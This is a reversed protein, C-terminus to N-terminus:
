GFVSSISRIFGTLGTSKKPPAKLDAKARKVADNTAANGPLVTVDPLDPPILTGDPLQCTTTVPECIIVPLGLALFAQSLAPTVVTRLDLAHLEKNYAAALGSKGDLNVGATLLPASVLIKDVQDMNDGVLRLTRSLVTLDKDLQVRHKGVLQLGDRSISALSALLSQISAREDALADTTRAFADLVRGLTADRSSLTATIRDFHDIIAGVEKDKTGLTETITGLGDLAANLNEGNGDLDKSLNTLLKGTSTPDISDLLHKVAALAEDPETPVSTRELPIVANPKLKPDGARWAPKLQM